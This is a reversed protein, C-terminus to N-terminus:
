SQTCCPLRHFPHMPRCQLCQSPHTCTCQLSPPLNTGFTWTQQAWSGPAMARWHGGPDSWMLRAPVWRQHHHSPCMPPQPSLCPPPHDSLPLTTPRQHSPLLHNQAPWRAQILGCGPPQQLYGTTSAPPPLMSATPQQRCRLLPVRLLLFRSLHHTPPQPVSAL